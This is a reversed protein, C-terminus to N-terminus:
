DVEGPLQSDDERIAAAGQNLARRYGSNYHGPICLGPIDELLPLPLCDLLLACREREEVRAAEEAAHIEAIVCPKCYTALDCVEHECTHEFESIRFEREEPTDGM